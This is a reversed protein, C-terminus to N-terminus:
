ALSMKYLISQATALGSYVAGDMYGGFCTSTETGALHLRGNMLPQSYLPHGSNQYPMMYKGYDAFTYAEEKWVREAYSLYNAAQKGLLRTLQEM